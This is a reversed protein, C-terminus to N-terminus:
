VRRKWAFTWGEMVQFAPVESCKYCSPSPAVCSMMLRVSVSVFASVEYYGTRHYMVCALPHRHCARRISVNKLTYDTGCVRTATGLGCDRGGVGVCGVHAPEGDSPKHRPSCNWNTALTSHHLSELTSVSAPLVVFLLPVRKFLSNVNLTRHVNIIM